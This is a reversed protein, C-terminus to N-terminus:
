LACGTRSQLGVSECDVRHRSSARDNLARASGICDQAIVSVVYEIVSFLLVRQLTQSFEMARIESNGSSPPSVPPPPVLSVCREGRGFDRTFFLDRSGSPLVAVASVMSGFRLFAAVVM